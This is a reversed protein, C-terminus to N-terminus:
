VRLSKEQKRQQGSKQGTAIRGRGYCKVSELSFDIEELVFDLAVCENTVLFIHHSHIFLAVPEWMWPDMTNQEPKKRFIRCKDSLPREGSINQMQLETEANM